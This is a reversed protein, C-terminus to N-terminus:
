FYSVVPLTKIKNHNEGNKFFVWMDNIKIAHFDHECTCIKIKLFFVSKGYFTVDLNRAELTSKMFKAVRLGNRGDRVSGLVLLVSLKDRGAMKDSAMSQRYRRYM